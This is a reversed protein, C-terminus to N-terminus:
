TSAFTPDIFVDSTLTTESTSPTTERPRRQGDVICLIEEVFATKAASHIGENSPLKKLLAQAEKATALDTCRFAVLYLPETMGMGM